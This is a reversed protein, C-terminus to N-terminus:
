DTHENDMIVNGDTDTKLIPAEQNEEEEPFSDLWERLHQPLPEIEGDSEKAYKEIMIINDDVFKQVRIPNLYYKTDTTEELVDQLKRELPFPKPFNFSETHNPDYISFLFIRLRNQPVGYDKANILSAFNSYGYSELESQWQNFYKIFKQSVLAAVNELLIYKPKKALIAKRCEWLLSSRTGSDESLGKQKGAQSIDTCPFSYTFFDFDPVQTWDIKSIDGYNKGIGSPHLVDHAICQPQKEIPLNSEPDFDSWGVIEFCFEPYHEHLKKLALAQSGYGSFAEFLRLPREKTYEIM